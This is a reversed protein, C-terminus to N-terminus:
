SNLLPVLVPESDTEWPQWLSTGCVWYSVVSVHERVTSFDSDSILITAPGVGPPELSEELSRQEGANRSKHSCRELRQMTTM